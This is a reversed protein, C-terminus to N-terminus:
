SIISPIVPLLDITAIKGDLVKEYFEFAQRCQRKFALQTMVQM